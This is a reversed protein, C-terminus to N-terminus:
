PRHWVVVRNNGSDAIGLLEGYRPDAAASLGYPWCLTDPAVATWRNEGARDFDRQGLVADAAPEGPRSWGLVRNNATDAVLLTGGSTAVAYPFRLRAPGQPVHPLEFATTMTRQGLLLDAPRDGTLPLRWGLLRHNGADAVWLVGDLVALQHPWRFSDAAPEGDRNEGRHHPDPQGLVVDAPRRGHPLGQWGLVRRNGTDAVWLWGDQWLVGFPWYLSAADPDGGRNATVAGLDDQGCVWVPEPDDRDLSADFGVLRHNWADAVVLLDGARALGTPLHLGREPGRGGAQPGEARPGPQGVVVAGDAGDAGPLDPWVLLRHNGTDAAIVRTRDGDRDLLVGRPAYLTGPTASASPLALDLGPGSPLWGGPTGPTGPSGPTGAGAGALAGVLAATRGGAAGLVRLPRWGGAVAGDVGAAYTAGTAGSGPGTGTEAPPM